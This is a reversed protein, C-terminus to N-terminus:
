TEACPAHAASETVTVRRGSVFPGARVTLVGLFPCLIVAYERVTEPVALSADVPPLPMAETVTLPTLADPSVASLFAVALHLMIRSERGFVIVTM